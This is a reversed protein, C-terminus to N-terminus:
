QLLLSVFECVCNKVRFEDKRCSNCFYPNHYLSLTFVVLIGLLVLLSLPRVETEDWQFIGIGSIILSLREQQICCIYVSESLVQGERCISCILMLSIFIYSHIYHNITQWINKRVQSGKRAETSSSKVLLPSLYYALDAFPSPEQRPNSFSFTSLLPFKQHHSFSTLCPNPYLIFLLFLIIM